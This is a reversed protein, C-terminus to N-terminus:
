TRRHPPSADSRTVPRRRSSGRLREVRRASSLLGTTLLLWAEVECGHKIVAKVQHALPDDDVALGVLVREGVVHLVFSVALLSLGLTLLRRGPPPVWRAIALVCLFSAVLVPAYLVLYHPVHDHLRFTKDVAIFTVLPPLAVLSAGTPGGRILFFWASGAAALAALDGVVGFVGGDGASDLAGVRLDFAHDILQAASGAVVVVVSGTVAATTRRDRQGCHRTGTPTTSM